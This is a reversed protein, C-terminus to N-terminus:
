VNEALGINVIGDPNSEPDWLNNLVDFFVPKRAELALGRSSINNEM